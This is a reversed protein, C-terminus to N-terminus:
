MMQAANKTGVPIAMYPSPPVEHHAAVAGRRIPICRHHYPSSKLATSGSAPRRRGRGTSLRFEAPSGSSSSCHRSSTSRHRVRLSTVAPSCHYKSADPTSEGATGPSSDPHSSDSDSTHFERYIQPTMNPPSPTSSPVGLTGVPRWPTVLHIRTKRCSFAPQNRRAKTDFSPCPCPYQCTWRSSLPMSPQTLYSADLKLFRGSKPRRRRRHHM